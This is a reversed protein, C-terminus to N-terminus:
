WYPWDFHFPDYFMLSFEIPIPENPDHDVSLITVSDGVDHPVEVPAQMNSLTDIDTVGANLTAIKEKGM